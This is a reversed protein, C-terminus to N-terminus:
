SYGYRDSGQVCTDGPHMERGACVPHMAAPDKSGPHILLFSGWALVALGVLMGAVAGKM